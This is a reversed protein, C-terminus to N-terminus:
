RAGEAGAVVRWRELSAAHDQRVQEEPMGLLINECVDMSDFLASGQFVYGVRQRVRRLQGRTAHTISIGDVIVDGEDPEIM